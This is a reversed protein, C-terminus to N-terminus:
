KSRPGLDCWINSLVGVDCQAGVVNLTAIDLPKLSANVLIYIIQGIVKVKPDLNCSINGVSRQM